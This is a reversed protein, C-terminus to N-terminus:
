KSIGESKHKRIEGRIQKDHHKQCRHCLGCKSEEECGEVECQGSM